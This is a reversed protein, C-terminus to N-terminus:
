MLLICDNFSSIAWEISHMWALMLMRLCPSSTPARTRNSCHCLRKRLSAGAHGRRAMMAAIATTVRLLRRVDGVAEGRHLVSYEIQELRDRCHRAVADRLDALLQFLEAFILHLSHRAARCSTLRVISSNLCASSNREPSPCM